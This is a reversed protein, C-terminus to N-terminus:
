FFVSQLLLKLAYSKLIGRGTHIVAQQLMPFFVEVFLVM